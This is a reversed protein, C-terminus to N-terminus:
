HTKPKLKFNLEATKCCIQVNLSIQCIMIKVTSKSFSELCKATLRHSLLLLTHSSKWYEIDNLLSSKCKLLAPRRNCCCELVMMQTQQNDASSISSIDHNHQSWPKNKAFSIRKTMQLPRRHVHQKCYIMCLNLGLSYPHSVSTATAWFCYNLPCLESQCDGVHLLMQFGEVGKISWRLLLDM